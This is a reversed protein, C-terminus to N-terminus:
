INMFNKKKIQPQVTNLTIVNNFQVKCLASGMIFSLRYMPSMYKVVEPYQIVIESFCQNIEKERSLIENYYGGFNAGMKKGASTYGFLEIGYALGKCAETATKQATLCGNIYREEVSKLVKILMSKSMQNLEELTYEAGIIPVKDQFKIITKSISTFDRDEDGTLNIVESQNIENQKAESQKNENQKMQSKDVVGQIIGGKKQEKDTVTVGRKMKEKEKMVRAKIQTRKRVNKKNLAKDTKNPPFMEYLKKKLDEGELGILLDITNDKFDLDSVISGSEDFNKEFDEDKIENTNGSEFKSFDIEVDNGKVVEIKEIIKKEDNGKVVENKEDIKKEEIPVTDNLPVNKGLIDELFKGIYPNKMIAHSQIDDCIQQKTEDEIEPCGLIPNIYNTQLKEVESPDITKVDALYKYLQEIAKSAEEFTAVKKVEKKIEVQNM